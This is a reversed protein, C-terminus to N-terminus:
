LGSRGPPHGPLGGLHRGPDGRRGDVANWAQDQPKAPRRRPDRSRLRAPRVAPDADPDRPYVGDVLHRRRDPYRDDPIARATPPTPSWLILWRGWVQPTLLRSWCWM